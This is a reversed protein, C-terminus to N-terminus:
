KEKEKKDRASRPMEYNPGAIDGLSILKEIISEPIDQTM